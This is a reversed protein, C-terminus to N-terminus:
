FIRLKDEVIHYTIGLLSNINVMVNDFFLKLLVNYKYVIALAGEDDPVPVPLLGLCCRQSIHPLLKSLM